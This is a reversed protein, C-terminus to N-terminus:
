TEQSTEFRSPTDIGMMCCLGSILIILLTIAVMIGEYVGAFTECIDDCTSASSSSNSSLVRGQFASPNRGKLPESIYLVANNTGSQRSALLITELMDGEATAGFETAPCIVMLDTESSTRAGKRSDIFEKIDKTSDVLQVGETLVHWKPDLFKGACPGMILSKGPRSKLDCTDRLTSLLIEAFGARDAPVSVYPLAMSYNSSLFSEKLIQLMDLDAYAGLSIDESFLESGIFAIVVDVKEQGEGHTCLLESWGFKEM